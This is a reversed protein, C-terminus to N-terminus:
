PNGRINIRKKTFARMQDVFKNWTGAKETERDMTNLVIGVFEHWKAPPIISVIAKALTEALEEVDKETARAQIM